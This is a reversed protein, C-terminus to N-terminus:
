ATAELTDRATVIADRDMRIMPQYDPDSGIGIDAFPRLAERLKAIDAQMQGVMAADGSRQGEILLKRRATIEAPTIRHTMGMGRGAQNGANGRGAM